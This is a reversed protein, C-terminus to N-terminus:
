DCSCNDEIPDKPLVSLIHEVDKGDSWQGMCFVLSDATKECRVIQDLASWIYRWNLNDEVGVGGLIIKSMWDPFFSTYVAAQMHNALMSPSGHKDTLSTYLRKQNSNICHIKEKWDKLKVISDSEGHLIAVPVNLHPGIDEIAIKKEFVGLLDVFFRILLPINSDSSPIPNVAVVQQPKLQAPTEDFVQDAYYSWSLAQLGGLSHGFLYSHVMEDLLGHCKYAKKVSSIANKVWGEANVPCPDFIAQYIESINNWFKWQVQCFGRQYVPYFVYFGQKVLHLLHSEYIESAGLAFGHLYIVAKKYGQKDLHPNQPILVKIYNGQQCQGDTIPRYQPSIYQACFDPKSPPLPQPRLM